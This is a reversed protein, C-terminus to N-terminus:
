RMVCHNRGREFGERIKDLCTYRLLVEGEPATLCNIGYGIEELLAENLGVLGNLGIEVEEELKFERGFGGYGLTTVAIVHGGKDEIFGRLCALTGGMHFLDDVLIYHRDPQVDGYFEPQAVLRYWVDREFDRKASRAKFIKDTFDWENERALWKAYTIALANQNEGPALAPAVLIPRQNLQWELVYGFMDDIVATQEAVDITVGLAAKADRDHKASAYGHQGSLSKGARSEWPLHSFVTPHVNDNWPVRQIDGMKMKM